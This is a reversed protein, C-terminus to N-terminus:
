RRRVTTRQQPLRRNGFAHAVEAAPVPRHPPPAPFPAAGPPLTPASGTRLWEDAIRRAAQPAAVSTGNIEVVSGSMTGAALLGRCAPSDDSVELWSPGVNPIWADRTGHSSYAAPYQDSNRYGGIVYTRSGTAIGSLTQYRTVYSRNPQPDFDLPRTNIARREYTPDDFFSQRGKARRGSQTDARKIWAHVELASATTMQVTWLGSPAITGGWSSSPDIATRAISLVIRARRRKTSGPILRGRIYTASYQVTGPPAAAPITAKTNTRTVTIPPGFPPQLTVSDNNGLNGSLWIEMISPSLSCPQLRWNMAPVGPRLRLSAHIRSQRFNGAALVIELPTSTGSSANVLADMFREFPDTGDHSGEHPGYSLNAVVGLTENPRRMSEARSLVYLLGWAAHVSLTSGAPDGVADEPMDVAIIPHQPANPIRNGAALDLVHTGHARRHALPKFGEVSYDVGGFKAYIWEDTAGRARAAARAANIAAAGLEVGPATTFVTSPSPLTRGLFRQQWLFAIRTGGAAGTFRENAFAIGQDIVAVVIRRSAETSSGDTDAAPPPPPSPPPASPSPPTIEEDIPLSDSTDFPPGLQASVITSNWGKSRILQELVSLDRRVLLICFAFSKQKKLVQPPRTFLDAVLVNDKLSDFVDGLWRRTAFQELATTGPSTGLATPDFEVLLPLWAGPNLYAFDTDRAWELYPSEPAAPPEDPPTPFPDHM